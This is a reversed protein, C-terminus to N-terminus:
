HEKEEQKEQEATKEAEFISEINREAVAQEQAEDRLRGYSQKSRLNRTIIFFGEEQLAHAGIGCSFPM